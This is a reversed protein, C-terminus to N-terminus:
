RSTGALSGTSATMRDTTGIDDTDGPDRHGVTSPAAFGIPDATGPGPTSPPQDIDPGPPNFEPPPMDPGGPQPSQAPDTAPPSIEPPPQTAM